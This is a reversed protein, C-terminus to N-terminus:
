ENKFLPNYICLLDILGYIQLIHIFLSIVSTM